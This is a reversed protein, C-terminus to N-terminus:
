SPTILILSDVPRSLVDLPMPLSCTSLHPLAGILLHNIPKRTWMKGFLHTWRVSLLGIWIPSGRISLLYRGFYAHDWLCCSVDKSHIMWGVRQSPGDRIDDAAM